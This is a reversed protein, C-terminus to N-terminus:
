RCLMEERSQFRGSRSRATAIEFQLLAIERGELLQSRQRGGRSFHDALSRRDDRQGGCQPLTWRAVPAIEGDKIAVDRLPM